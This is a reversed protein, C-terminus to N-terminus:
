EDQIKVTFGITGENTGTVATVSFIGYKADATKFAYADGVALGEIPTDGGNAFDLDALAGLTAVSNYTANDFDAAAAKRFKTENLATGEKTGPLSVGYYEKGHSVPM